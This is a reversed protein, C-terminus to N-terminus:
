KKAQRFNAPVEFTGAAAADRSLSLLESSISMLRITGDPLTATDAPAASEASAAKAADRRRGFMGGLAGGLAGGVAEGIGPKANAAQAQETSECQAGGVALSVTSRLPYGEADQMKAAIENWIGHYGGFMSELRQSFNASTPVELGLKEAYTRYYDVLEDGAEFEPALWQDLILNFDCVQGTQPDACSQSATVTVREARFGAITEAEGSREVTATPESWQCSSEDVGSTGQQQSQQAERMQEMSQQMMAKQEAFSLERFTKKKLDLQYLKEQDLRVIEATQGSGGFMRMLRSEMEVDSDTRARQGSVTTVTHGTMNIMKMLGTGEVRLRQEM